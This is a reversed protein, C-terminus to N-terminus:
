FFVQNEFAQWQMNAINTGIKNASPKLPMHHLSTFLIKHNFILYTKQIKPRVLIALYPSGQSHTHKLQFATRFILPFTRAGEQIYNCAM